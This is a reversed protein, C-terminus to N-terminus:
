LEVDIYDDFQFSPDYLAVTAKNEPRYVIQKGDINIIIDNSLDALKSSLSIRIKKILEPKTSFNITIQNNEISAFFQAGELKSTDSDAISVWFYRPASGQFYRINNEVYFTANSRLVGYLKKQYINRPSEQLRKITDIWLRTDMQHDGDHFILEYKSKQDYKVELDRILKEQIRNNTVFDTFHDKSGQIQVYPVNFSKNVQPETINKEVAASAVPVIYAFEDALYPTSRVIGMGGMSHGSLGINNHDIKLESRMLAVLSRLMPYTHGGWNLGAASPLVVIMGIEDALKKLYGKYRLAVELSGERTLTSNGGGHMFILSKLNSKDKLTEPIYYVVDYNFDSEYNAPAWKFSYFNGTSKFYKAKSEIKKQSVIIRDLDKDQAPATTEKKHEGCSALTLILIFLPLMKKM